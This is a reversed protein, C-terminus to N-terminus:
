LKARRLLQANIAVFFLFVHGLLGLPSGSRRDSAATDGVGALAFHAWTHGGLAVLTLGTFVALSPLVGVVGATWYWWLGLMARSLLSGARALVPMRGAASEIFLGANLISLLLALAWLASPAIAGVSLCLLLGLSALLVM